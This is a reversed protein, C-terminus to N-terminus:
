EGGRLTFQKLHERAEERTKFGHKEVLHIELYHPHNYAKNCGYPCKYPKDEQRIKKPKDFLKIIVELEYDYYVKRLEHLVAKQLTDGKGIIHTITGDYITSVGEHPRGTM